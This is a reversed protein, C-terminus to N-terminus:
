IISPPMKEHLSCYGLSYFHRNGHLMYVAFDFSHVILMALPIIIKTLCNCSNAIISHLFLTFYLFKPHVGFTVDVTM